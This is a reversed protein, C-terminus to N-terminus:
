LINKKSVCNSNSRRTLSQRNVSRQTNCMLPSYGKTYQNIGFLCAYCTKTRETKNTYYDCYCKKNDNFSLQYDHQVIHKKKKIYSKTKNKKSCKINWESKNKSHCYELDSLNTIKKFDKNDETIREKHKLSYPVSMIKNNVNSPVDTLIINNKGINQKNQNSLNNYLSKKSNSKCFKKEPILMSNIEKDENILDNSKENIYNSSCSKHKSDKIFTELQTKLNYIEKEYQQTLINLRNNEELLFLKFKDNTIDDSNIKQIPKYLHSNQKFKFLENHLEENEQKLVQIENRLKINENFLMKIQEELSCQSLGNVNYGIDNNNIIDSNYNIPNICQNNNHFIKMTNSIYQNQFYKTNSAVYCNKGFSGVSFSSGIRTATNNINNLDNINQKNNLPIDIFDESGIKNLIKNTKQILNEVRKANDNKTNVYGIGCKLDENNNKNESVLNSFFYCKNSNNM